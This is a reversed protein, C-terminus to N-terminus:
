WADPTGEPVTHFTPRPPFQRVLVLVLMTVGEFASM